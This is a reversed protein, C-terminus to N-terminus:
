NCGSVQDVPAEVKRPPGLAYKGFGYSTLSVAAALAGNAAWLQRIAGASPKSYYFLPISYANVMAHPEKALTGVGRIPILALVVDFVTGVFFQWSFGYDNFRNFANFTVIVVNAAACSWASATCAIAVVAAQFWPNRLISQDLRFDPFASGPVWSGSFGTGLDSGIASPNGGAFSYPNIGISALPHSSTYQGSQPDYYRTGTHIYGTETDHQMSAFGVLPQELWWNSNSGIQGNTEYSITNRTTGNANTTLRTSGQHDQHLYQVDGTTNIQYIPVGGPGHIVLATQSGQHEALLLPRGGVMMWSFEKRWETGTGSTNDLQKATRMGTTDYEYRWTRTPARFVGIVDVAV